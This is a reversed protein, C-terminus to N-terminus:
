GYIHTGGGELANRIPSRILGNSIIVEKVGARCAKASEILKRKMGGSVMHLIEQLKNVSLTQVVEGKVIVGDVDTLLLLVRPKLAGAIAFAAQDADVNLPTGAPDVALPAIVPVHGLKLLATLISPNVDVVRGTFGGDIVRKRGREDLIMIREKRLAKLIEGDMGSLGAAPIGHKLLAGVVRKNVIGAMVMIFVELEERNTYRSRLGSPHTVFHPKVGLRESYETVFEAGGHVIVIDNGGDMYSSIDKAVEDINNKIVRGGLKVLVTKM